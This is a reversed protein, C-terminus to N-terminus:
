ASTQRDSISSVRNKLLVIPAIIMFAYAFMGSGLTLAEAIEFSREPVDYISYSWLGGSMGVASYVVIRIYKNVGANKLFPGMIYAVVIAALFIPVTNVIPHYVIFEVLTSM